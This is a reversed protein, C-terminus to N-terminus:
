KLVEEVDITKLDGWLHELSYNQRGEESFIHVVINGLDALVWADSKEGEISKFADFGQGVKRLEMAVSRMHRENKGTCIVFYEVIPNVDKIDIIKINEVQKDDLLEIILKLEEM